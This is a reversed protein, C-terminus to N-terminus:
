LEDQKLHFLLSWAEFRDEKSIRFETKHPANQVDFSITDWFVGTTFDSSSISKRDISIITSRILGRRVWVVDNDTVILVSPWLGIGSVTRIWAVVADPHTKSARLARLPPLSM